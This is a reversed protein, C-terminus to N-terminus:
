VLIFFRERGKSLDKIKASFENEMYQYNSESNRVNRRERELQGRLSEEMRHKVFYGLTFLWSVVIVFFLNNVIPWSVNNETTNTWIFTWRLITFLVTLGFQVLFYQM